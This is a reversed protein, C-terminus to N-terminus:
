NKKDCRLPIFYFEITKIEPNEQQDLRGRIDENRHIKLSCDVRVQYFCFAFFSHV